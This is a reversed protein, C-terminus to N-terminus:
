DNPRYWPSVRTGEPRPTIHRTYSGILMDYYVYDYRDVNGILWSIHFIANQDFSRQGLSIWQYCVDPSLGNYRYFCVLQCRELNNLHDQIALRAYFSPWYRIPGGPFIHERNLINWRRAESVSRPIFSIREIIVANSEPLSRWRHWEM